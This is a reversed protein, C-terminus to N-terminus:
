GITIGPQFGFPYKFLAQWRIATFRTYTSCDLLFIGFSVQCDKLFSLLLKCAKQTQPKIPFQKLRKGWNLQQNISVLALWQEPQIFFVNLAFM